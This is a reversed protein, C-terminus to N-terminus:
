SCAADIIRTIVDEVDRAVPALEPDNFLELLDTPKLSSVVVAGGEEYVCIRCPLATSVSMDTELVKKAQVPNCVEIIRCEPGFEVGKEAMKAKLDITAIVGFKNAKTAEEVKRCVDVVSGKAHKTYLM